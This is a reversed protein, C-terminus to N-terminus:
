GFPCRYERNETENGKNTCQVQETYKKNEWDRVEKIQEKLKGKRETNKRQSKSKEERGECEEENMRTVVLVIGKYQGSSNRKSLKWNM